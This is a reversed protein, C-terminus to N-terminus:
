LQCHFRATCENACCLKRLIEAYLKNVTAWAQIHHFETAITANKKL